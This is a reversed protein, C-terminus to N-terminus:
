TSPHDHASHDTLGARKSFQAVCTGKVPFDNKRGIFSVSAGQKLLGACQIRVASSSTYTM